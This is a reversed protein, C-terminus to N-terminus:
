HMKVRKLAIVHPETPGNKAMKTIPAKRRQLGHLPRGRPRRGRVQSLSCAICGLTANKKGISTWIYCWLTPPYGIYMLYPPVRHVYPLPYGIYM